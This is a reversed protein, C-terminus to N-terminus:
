EQYAKGSAYGLGQLVAERAEKKQALVQPTDGPQAFYTRADNKFESEPIAAGSEKRLRAETFARQAQRYQQNEESQLWNPAFELRAQGALNKGAIAEELPAIDELAKRGRNYFALSQREAGTVARPAQAAPKGAAQSRPVWTPVGNVDVQVLQEEKPESPARPAQAVVKGSEDVLRAGPSLNHLKEEKTPERVVRGTKEDDIGGGPLTGFKGAEEKPGWLGAAPKIVGRLKPDWQEGPESGFLKAATPGLSQRILPWGAAVEEDKHTDIWHAVEGFRNLEQQPDRQPGKKLALVTNTYQLADQPRIQQMTKFLALPDQGDWGEIAAMTAQNRKDMQKQEDKKAFYDGLQAFGQQFAQAAFDAGSRARMGALDGQRGILEGLSYGGSPGYRSMGGEWPAPAYASRLAYGFAGRESM